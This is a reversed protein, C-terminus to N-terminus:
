SVGPLSLEIKKVSAPRNRVYEVLIYTCNSCPASGPRLM